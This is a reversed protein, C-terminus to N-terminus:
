EVTVSKALNRPQDIDCKRENAVYYAFLQTAVAYLFPSFFDSLRPLFIVEQTIKSIYDYEKNAFAFVPGNRSLIEMINSEMKEFTKENGCLAITLANETILAITGHKLEGAAIGLAHIYSIEKLKLAAELCTPYMQQRGIFFVHEYQSAKKALLKIEDKQEILISLSLIMERMQSLLEKGESANIKTIRGIKLSLLFLIILQSTFAKTSCVSIEPGAKLFITDAVLRAITSTQVNCLAIVNKTMTQALQIAAITDATEGSQSIAIVISKDTLLPAGYRFESAVEVCVRKNALSEIMQKAICGAHYSSGCALITINDCEKYVQDSLSIEDFIATMNKEDLRNLIAREISKPQELIEKLLFHDFGEKDLCSKQSELYETKKVLQVGHKNTIVIANRSLEAIENDELYFIDLSNGSFANTDSALFIDETERSVGIILPASKTACVITAPELQHIAAIAFTGELMLSVEHMAKALSGKYKQTLLHPIVETDTNSIFNFGDKILNEKLAVYNEIIGNHVVFITKEENFHPHANVETLGGHTAWRTHAIAADLQVTFDDLVKVKGVRKCYEIKKGHLGAIGASDYGRYQLTELGEICVKTSNKGLVCIHGFIGCM